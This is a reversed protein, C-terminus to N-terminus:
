IVNGDKYVYYLPPMYRSSAERIAKELWGDLAVEVELLDVIREYSVVTIRLYLRGGKEVPRLYIQEYGSVHNNVLMWRGAEDKRMQYAFHPRPGESIRLFRREVLESSPLVGAGFAPISYDEQIVLLSLPVNGAVIAESDGNKMLMIEAYGAPDLSPTGGAYQTLPTVQRVVVHDWASDYRVAEVKDASYIGPPVFKHMQFLDGPQLDSFLGPTMERGNRFIRFFGRQVKRRSDQSSYGGVKKAGNVVARGDLVTEGAVRLRDLRAEVRNLDKRFKLAKSLDRNSIEIANVKRLTDAYTGWSFRFWGHHMEGVSDVASIEWLGPKLCNNTVSLRVPRVRANAAIQGAGVQYEDGSFMNHTAHFVALKDNREQYSLEVGNRAYEALMLNALDFDDPHRDHPYPLIPFLHSFKLGDVFVKNMSGDGHLVLSLSQDTADVKVNVQDLERLVSVYRNISQTSPTLIADNKRDEQDLKIVNVEAYRIALWAVVSLAVAALLALRRIPFASVSFPM